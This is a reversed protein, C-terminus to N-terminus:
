YLLENSHITFVVFHSIVSECLVSDNVLEWCMIRCYNEIWNSPTLGGIKSCLYSM